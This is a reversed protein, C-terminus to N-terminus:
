LGKSTMSLYQRKFKSGYGAPDEAANAAESEAIISNLEDLYRYRVRRDAFEIEAAGTAKVNQLDQIQDPTLAKLNKLM